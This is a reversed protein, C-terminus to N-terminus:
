DFNLKICITSSATTVAMDYISANWTTMPEWTLVSPTCTASGASTYKLASITITGAYMMSYPMKLRYVGFRICDLRLSSAFIQLALIIPRISMVKM